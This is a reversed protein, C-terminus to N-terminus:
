IKKPRIKKCFQICVGCGICINENIIMTTESDPDPSKYLAPCGFTDICETCDTNCEPGVVFGRKKGKGTMRKEYLPCPAKAVIVSLKNSDLAERVATKTKAVNIPNVVTVQEVGCAEAIGAISISPKQWGPPTIEIGPHPQHGTMATTGNDLVVLLFNHQNHVANVLGTIGSHFFTSDGIFAIVKKDTARAIGAASTVSSGMCILFDAAQLPPLLGLTYCGIDSPFVADTGMEQLVSNVAYYAARHPCGACLNPPRMPLRVPEPDNQIDVPTPSTYELEFHRAIVQRVLGPDHEYLRSFLEPGKGAIPVSLGLTQATVKLDEEMVPELEEVVLVKDVSKLFDAALEDPFPYSFGLKLVKVRDQIGLDQIADAVYNYVIGSTVIGWPGDGTV